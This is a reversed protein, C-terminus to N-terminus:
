ATLFKIAARSVEDLHTFPLAHNAGPIIALQANPIAQFMSITHEITMLDRDAALVLTPVSIKALDDTTLTPQTMFMQRTKEFMVPFHDPGDPTYKEYAEVAQPLIARLVDPTFSGFMSQSQPSLGEHHYNAAIPVM